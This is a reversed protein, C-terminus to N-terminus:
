TKLFYCVCAKTDTFNSIKLSIKAQVLFLDFLIEIKHSLFNLLRELIPKNLM